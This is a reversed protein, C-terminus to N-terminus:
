KSSVLPSSSNASARVPTVASADEGRNTNNNHKAAEYAKDDADLKLTVGHQKEVITSRDDPM